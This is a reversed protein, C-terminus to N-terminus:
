LNLPHLVHTHHILGELLVLVIEKRFDQEVLEISNYGMLPSVSETDGKQTTHIKHILFLTCSICFINLKFLYKPM